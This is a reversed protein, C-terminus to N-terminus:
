GNKVPLTEGTGRRVAQFERDTAVGERDMASRTVHVMPIRRCGHEPLLGQERVRFENRGGNELHEQDSLIETHKYLVM